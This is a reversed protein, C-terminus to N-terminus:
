LRGPYDLGLWVTEDGREFKVIGYSTGWKKRKFGDAKLEKARDRFRDQAARKREFLAVKAQPSALTEAHSEIVAGKWFEPSRAVAAKAEAVTM